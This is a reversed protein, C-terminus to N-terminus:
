TYRKYPERSSSHISHLALFYGSSCSLLYVITWKLVSFPKVVRKLKRGHLLAFNEMCEPSVCFIWIVFLFLMYALRAVLLSFQFNFADFNINWPRNIVKTLACIYKYKIQQRKEEKKVIAQIKKTAYTHSTIYMSCVFVYKWVFTCMIERCRGKIRM